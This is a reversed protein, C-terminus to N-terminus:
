LVNTQESRIVLIPLETQTGVRAATSGLVAAKIRGYGHSGMVVIDANATAWRAIEDGPDGDLRVAEATLGAERLTELVPNVAENWIKAKEKDFYKKSAEPAVADIENKASTLISPAVSLVFVEPHPGFFEPNSVIFAAAADGYDSGDTALAIRLNEREPLGKERVLLVPANAHELVGRSVSGLFFSKVPSLGRSGMAILDVKATEAERAIAPGCDGFLVGTEPKLGAAEATRVSAELQANGEAEYVTRVAELGFRTVVSNPIASQVNVIEVEPKAGMFKSREGVFRIAEISNVSGDSPILIKM